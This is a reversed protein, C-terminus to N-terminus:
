EFSDAFMPEIFAYSGATGATITDNLGGAPTSGPVRLVPADIWIIAGANLTQSAANYTAASADVMHNIQVGAFFETSSLPAGYEDTFTAGSTNVTLGQITVTPETIAQVPGRLVVDNIDPNGRDRVRTAYAQGSGDIYGRVEVQRTQNMGNALYGDQDRVQASWLVPIGFVSISTGALVAAPAVPAEFRVVPRVFAIETAALTDADVYSGHVIVGVGPDLDTADGFVFVTNADFDIALAGILFRTDTPVETVLGELFGIATPTGAPVLAVCRADTVTDITTGPPFPDIATARLEVYEGVAPVAALCDDFVVGAVSVPQAGISITQAGPNVALVPGTLLFRPGAVGRREVLSALVSGNVDILGAVVAPTGLPLTHSAGVGSLTTDSTITIPQGLVAMPSVQTVPGILTYSFVPTPTVGRRMVGPTSWRAQMGNQRYRLDSLTAPTGDIVVPTDLPMTVSEGNISFTLSQAQTTGTAAAALLLCLM